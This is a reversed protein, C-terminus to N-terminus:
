PEAYGNLQLTGVAEVPGSGLDGRATVVGSWMPVVFDHLQDDVLPSVIMENDGDLSLRWGVPYASPAGAPGWTHVPEMEVSASEIQSVNGAPGVIFGEVTPTGGGTRRRTRILSIDSGDDVQLVLRDWVMPGTPFPLDGWLHDLWAAGEVTERGEATVLAGKARLRTMSYGRFPANASDAGPSTATKEPELRLELAASEGVTAAIALAPGTLGDEVKMSWDDLRWERSPADYGAVGAIGRRLREEAIAAGENRALITHGRYLERMDWASQAPEANPAVLALRALSFQFGLTEGGEDHLHVSLSWTEMPAMPHAGHDRPFDLPGSWNRDFEELPVEALMASWGRADSVAREPGADFKPGGSLLYGGGIAAFGLLGIVLIRASIRM